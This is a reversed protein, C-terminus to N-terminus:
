FSGSIDEITHSRKVFVQAVHDTAVGRGLSFSVSDFTIDYNFTALAATGVGPMVKVWHPTRSAGAHTLGHALTINAGNVTTLILTALPM